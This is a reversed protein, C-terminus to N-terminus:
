NISKIKKSLEVKEIFRKYTNIKDIGIKDELKEHDIVKQSIKRKKKKRYFIKLM